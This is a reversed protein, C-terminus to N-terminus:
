LDTQECTFPSFGSPSAGASSVTLFWFQPNPRKGGSGGKKQLEMGAAEGVKSLVNLVADPKLRIMQGDTKNTRSNCKEGKEGWTM